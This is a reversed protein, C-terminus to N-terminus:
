GPVAWKRITEKFNELQRERGPLGLIVKDYTWVPHPNELAAIRLGADEFRTRLRVLEFLTWHAGTQDAAGRSFRQDLSRPAVALVVEEVGYQTFFTLFEDRIDSLVYAAIRITM